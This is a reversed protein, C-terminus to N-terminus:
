FDRQIQIKETRHCVVANRERVVVIQLAYCTCISPIRKGFTLFFVFYDRINKFAQLRKILTHAHAWEYGCVGTM